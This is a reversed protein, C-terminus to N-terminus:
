QGVGQQLHALITAKHQKLLLLQKGSLAGKAARFKLKGGDDWLEINKLSLEEIFEEVNM